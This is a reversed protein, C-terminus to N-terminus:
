LLHRIDTLSKGALVGCTLEAVDSIERTVFGPPEYANMENDTNFEIEFVFLGKLPGHFEDVGLALGTGEWHHRVKSILQGGPLQLLFGYTEEPVYFTTLIRRKLDDTDQLKQTFKYDVQGTRLHTVKRLRLSKGPYYVDEIRSQHVDGSLVPVENCLFRREREIEAYKYGSPKM